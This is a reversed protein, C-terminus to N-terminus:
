SKDQAKRGVHNRARLNRKRIEAIEEIEARTKGAVAENTLEKNDKDIKLALKSIPNSTKIRSAEVERNRTTKSLRRVNRNM